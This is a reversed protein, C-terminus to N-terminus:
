EMTSLVLLLGDISIVKVCTVCRDEFRSFGREEGTSRQVNEVSVMGTSVLTGKVPWLQEGGSSMTTVIGAFSIDKKWSM